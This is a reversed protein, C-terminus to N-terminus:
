PECSKEVLQWDAKIRWHYNSFIRFKQILKKTKLQVFKSVVDESLQAFEDLEKHFVGRLSEQHEVSKDTIFHKFLEGTGVIPHGAVLRLWRYLGLRREELLSDMMLQKPPLRPIMRYPYKILLLNQLNLFDSYRRLV